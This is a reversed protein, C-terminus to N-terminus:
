YNEADKISTMADCLSPKVITIDAAQVNNNLIYFFIFIQVVCPTKENIQYQFFYNKYM